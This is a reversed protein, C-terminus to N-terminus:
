SALGTKIKKTVWGLLPLHEYLMAGLDYFDDRQEIKESWLIITSGRLVQDAGNDIKPHAFFMQWQFCAEKEVIIKRDFQFRCYALNNRSAQFYNVRANLGHFEHIPGTFHVDASYLQVLENLDAKAFDLFFAQIQQVLALTM